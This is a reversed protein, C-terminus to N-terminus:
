STMALKILKENSCGNNVSRWLLIIILQSMKKVSSVKGKKVIEYVSTKRM